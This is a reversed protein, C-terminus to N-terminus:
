QGPATASRQYSEKTCIYLRSTKQRSGTQAHFCFGAKEIKNNLFDNEDLLMVLRSVEVFTFLFELVTHIACSSHNNSLLREPKILFQLRFDGPSVKYQLSIDDASAQYIDAQALTANNSLVMFSQATGSTAIRSYIEQLHDVHAEKKLHRTYEWPLWHYVVPLDSSLCLLRLSIIVQESAFHKSYAINQVSDYSVPKCLMKREVNMTAPKASENFQGALDKLAVPTSLLLSASM